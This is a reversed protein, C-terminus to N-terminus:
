GTTKKKVKRWYSMWIVFFVAWKEVTSVSSTLLIVEIVPVQSQKLNTKKIKGYKQWIILRFWVWSNFKERERGEPLAQCGALPKREAWGSPWSCWCWGPLLLAHPPPSHQPRVFSFGWPWSDICLLPVSHWVTKIHQTCHLNLLMIRWRKSEGQRM